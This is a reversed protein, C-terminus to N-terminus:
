PVMEQDRLAVDVFGAGVFSAELESGGQVFPRRMLDSLEEAM